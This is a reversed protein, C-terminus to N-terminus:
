YFTKQQSHLYDQLSLSSWMECCSESRLEESRLLIKWTRAAAQARRIAIQLLELIWMTHGKGIDVRWLTRSSIWFTKVLYSFFHM